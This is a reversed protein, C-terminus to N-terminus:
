TNSNPSTTQSSITPWTITWHGNHHTHSVCFAKGWSLSISFKSFIAFIESVLAFIQRFLYFNRFCFRFKRLVPLCKAFIEFSWSFVFDFNSFLRFNRFKAFFTRFRIKSLFRFNRFASVTFLFGFNQESLFIWVDLSFLRFGLKTPPILDCFWPLEWVGGHSGLVVLPRSDM